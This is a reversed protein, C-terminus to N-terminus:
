LMVFGGEIERDLGVSSRLKRREEIRRDEAESMINEEAFYLGKPVTSKVSRLTASGDYSSLSLHEWETLDKRKRARELYREHESEPNQLNGVFVNAQSQRSCAPFLM